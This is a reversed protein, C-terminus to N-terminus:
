MVSNLDDDTQLFDNIRKRMNYNLAYMQQSPHLKNVYDIVIRNTIFLKQELLENRYIQHISFMHHRYQTPFETLPKQKKVYCDKYNSFLTNTFDHLQQRLKNCENKHEPFYELYERVKGEKRLSLYRYLIKPQNGKLEKIQQYVPNRKKTREGTLINKFVIGLADYSSNNSAYKDILDQYKEYQYIEPLQVTSNEFGFININSLCQSYVFINEPTNEIHYVEILFLQPFKFPVVIRNEPHQLVFSYCYNKDLSHIDVNNYVCAEHFMQNFTKYNSNEDNKNNDNKNKYFSVNGGVTNRTAIEWLEVSSDWFLNIMTGEVFQEGIIHENKNPDKKLFTEMTLSKSPSVSIVHNNKNIVVSRVLGFPTITDKDILDKNYRVIKYVENTKNSYEIVNLIDNSYDQNLLINAFDPISRLDYYYLSSM